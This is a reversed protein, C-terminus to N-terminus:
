FWISASLSVLRPYAYTMRNAFPAIDTRNGVKHRSIRNEEYSSYIVSNGLINRASLQINLTTSNQLKIRKSLTIDLTTADPLRQQSKLIDVEEKSPAYSMIRETRRIYSPTAYRMGWYNVSARAMWGNYRFAIDGYATLEPAGLNHGKMNSITSYIQTNDNDSYTTVTPNNSYRYYGASVAFNSTFYQSWKVYANAEVGINLRAIDSVVADAYEGALDDYYRVVDTENAIHSVYLQTNIRLRPATYSYSIEGAVATALTPNDITRNNYETQLFLDDPRPSEGRLILAIGMDHKGANYYCKAALLSPTLNISRSHGHSANGAFLEKEFNGHRQTHELAMNAAVEFDADWLQWRASAYLKANLRTLSYDYGYREGEAVRNNPNQLNNDTLHSYTADDELYYDRDIIHSAGLLDDLVRYKHESNGRLEIGYDVTAGNLLTNFGANIALHATNSHRSAVAYRAHGDQQISNTHYLREWDIQTYRLDNTLWAKEVIHRDSDLTQYSPMYKYNDPAPTPANFWTLASTGQLEYYLNASLTLRTMATVRHHWLAVAEPRLTTAVRSNRVGGNQIGWSPNYLNNGTLTYAEQTSAGRLGRESYPLTVAIHIDDNRGSYSAGFSLDLANTYVGEVYLDRGTRGRANTLLTWGEKLMVGKTPLSYIGRYNAGVLYNRGSIDMRVSHGDYLTLEKGTIIRTGEALGGLILTSSGQETSSRFGLAKLSRTTAYDIGMNGFQNRMESYDYGRYKNTAYSLAYRSNPTYAIASIESDDSEKLGGWLSIDDEEERYFKFDRYNLEETTEVDQALLAFCSAAICVITAFIYRLTRNM